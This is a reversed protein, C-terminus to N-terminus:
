RTVVLRRWRKEKLVTIALTGGSINWTGSGDATPFATEGGWGSGINLHTGTYATGGTQNIIGTGGNQGIRFYNVPDNGSPGGLTGNKINVTGISGVGYGVTCNDNSAPGVFQATAGDITVTGVGPMNLNDSWGIRPYNVKLIGSGTIEIQHGKALDGGNSNRGVDLYQGIGTFDATGATVILKAPAINGSGIYVYGGSGSATTTFNNSV